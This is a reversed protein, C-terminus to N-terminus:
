IGLRKKLEKAYTRSVPVRKDNKMVLNYTSNFWPQVESIHHVNVIYGRHVRVFSQSPLKKELMALTDATHYSETITQITVEGEILGVFLIDEINVLVISDDVSIALKGTQSSSEGIPEEEKVAHHPVRMKKYKHIAQVVREEDFPKLIYDIADVEFAQLAYQDYATAFIIAPPNNMKKLRKAIDFGSDDSLQIDLFLLDPKEDMMKDLAEEISEAEEIFDVEKTRHLLYKLEDRALMEDDVILVRLM